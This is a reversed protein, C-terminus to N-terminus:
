KAIAYASVSLTVENSVKGKAGAPITIGYDSLKIPFKTSVQIVDGDFGAAKAAAGAARYRVRVSTTVTKTVGKLTLSGTVRYNDGAQKEVKTTKFTITPYKASNLWGEALMHENRLPIGTDISAVDIVIMGNGKRSAPDFNITGSVLSTRGTFTEFESESEVTAVNRYSLKDGVIKFQKEAAFSIASAAVALVVVASQIWNKM